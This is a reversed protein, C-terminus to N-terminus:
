SSPAGKRIFSKSQLTRVGIKEAAIALKEDDTILPKGLERAISLYAADYYTIDLKSANSLTKAGLSIDETDIVNMLHLLSFTFKLAKVAEDLNLRKLLNCEKWLGNGIEYYALPSTFNKEVLDLVNEGLERTLTLISSADFVYSM